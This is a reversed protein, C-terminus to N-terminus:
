AFPLGVRTRPHGAQERSSRTAKDSIHEDAVMAQSENCTHEVILLSIVESVRIPAPRFRRPLDSRSWDFAHVCCRM